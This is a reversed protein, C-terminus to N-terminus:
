NPVFQYLYSVESESLARNYFRVEDIQGQFYNGNCTATSCTDAITLPFDTTAISGLVSTSRQKDGNIYSKLTTGDYVCGVHYWTDTSALTGTASYAGKWGNINFTCRLYGQGTDLSWAGYSQTSWLYRGGIRQWSAIRGMKIWAFFSMQNTVNYSSSNGMNLYDNSGDFNGTNGFGSQGAIVTPGNVARGSNNNGSSDTVEGATGNWSSENMKWYGILGYLLGYSGGSPIYGSPAATGYTYSTVHSSPAPGQVSPICVREATELDACVAFGQTDTTTGNLYIPYDYGTKPDAPAGGQFDATVIGSFTRTTFDFSSEFNKALADIDAKRKADRASKQANAYVSFAIAGLIALITIVVLLEVLTFGFNRKM